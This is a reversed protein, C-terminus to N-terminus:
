ERHLELDDPSEGADLERDDASESSSELLRQWGLLAVLLLADSLLLILLLGCWGRLLRAEVSLPQGAVLLFGSASIAVLVLLLPLGMVLVALTRRFM